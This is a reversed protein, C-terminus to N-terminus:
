RSGGPRPDAGSDLGLHLSDLYSVMSSDFDRRRVFVRIGRGACWTLPVHFRNTISNWEEGSPIRKIPVSDTCAEFIWNPTATVLAGMIFSLMWGYIGIRRRLLLGGVLYFAVAIGPLGSIVWALPLGLNQALQGPVSAIDAAVTLLFFVPVIHKAIALLLKKLEHMEVEGNPEERRENYDLVENTSVM